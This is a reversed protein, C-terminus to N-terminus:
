LSVYRAYLAQADLAEHSQEDVSPLSVYSFKRHDIWAGLAKRTTFEGHRHILAVLVVQTIKLLETVDELLIDKGEKKGHAISSRQTYFDTVQKYLKERETIAEEPPIAVGQENPLQKYLNKREALIDGVLIAVGEGLTRSIPEQSGRTFLTELCIMLSLFQYQINLETQSNAFWHIAELLTNEFETRDTEGFIDILQFFGIPIMHQLIAPSLDFTQLRRTVEFSSGITGSRQIVVRVTSLSEQGSRGQMDVTIRVRGQVGYIFPISYRLLDLMERCLAEAQIIAMELDAAIPIKACVHGQLDEKIEKM